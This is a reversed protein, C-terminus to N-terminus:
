SSACPRPCCSSTASCCAPRSCSRSRGAAAARHRAERQPQARAAIFGYLEYLIVPLSIVCRSTCRWRSPPRSRSAWASRSPITARDPQAPDQGRRGEAPRDAAAAPRAGAGLPRQQPQGAVTLAARRIARSRSCARSPSCPRDSRERAGQRGAQADADASTQQHHAAARPEAVPLLRVRRGARSRQRDPPSRLEDLHDVLSLRDEHGITRIASPMARM